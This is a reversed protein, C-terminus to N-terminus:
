LLQQHVREHRQRGPYARHSQADRGCRNWHYRTRRYRREIGTIVEILETQGNGEVGAIGLIEGSRIELSVHDLVNKGNKELVIDELSIRVPRDARLDKKKINLDVFRGVMLDALKQEDVEEIPLRTVKKGKRLITVSDAVAMTEKLKHTIIIVTKGDKKLGRLVTFLDDVEQPTLVATPEDLILIDAKHYLAKLIEVRQRVGVSLERIKARPDVKFHYRDALEGIQRFADELDFFPGKKPEQGLVINETVTLSDVLMFHQHVMSIGNEIAVRPSSISVEEGNIKIIGSDARYMGFLINMLTTKGAGNEGLLSHIEGKEVYFDVNDNAPMGNFRKTIGLMEVANM